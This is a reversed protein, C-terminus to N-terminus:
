SLDARTGSRVRTGPTASGQELTYFWFYAVNELIFLKSFRGVRYVNDSSFKTLLWSIEFCISKIWLPFRLNYLVRHRISCRPLELKLCTSSVPTQLNGFGAAIKKMGKPTVGCCDLYIEKKNKLCLSWYGVEGDGIKMENLDLSKM